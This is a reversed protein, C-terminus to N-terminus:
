KIKNHQSKLYEIIETKSIPLSHGPFCVDFELDELMNILSELKDANYECNNYYDMGYADGIFVVREEPIYVIVSDKSHPSVVNKLIVKLGGLDLELNNKFVIDASVVNIDHLNEYEKRINTDAFEIDEGTSLRKKMAEDTWQWKSMVKLQENTIECAITKGTVSHMGYTHDWHWHTIAVYDPLRLNLKEISDNFKELHNKSNGADVMLAYKDGKIYGLVPRDTERDNILYYVRQTVKRLGM